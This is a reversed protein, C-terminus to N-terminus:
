HEKFGTESTAASAQGALRASSTAADGGLGGPLPAPRHSHDRPRPRRKQVDDRRQQLLLQQRQRQLARAARGRLVATLGWGMASTAGSLLLALGPHQTVGYRVYMRSGAVGEVLRLWANLRTPAQYCWATLMVFLSNALLMQTGYASMQSPPMLGQGEFAQFCSRLVVCVACCVTHYYLATPSALVWAMAAELLTWWFRGAVCRFAMRAAALRAWAGGAWLAAAAPCTAQFAGFLSKLHSLTQFTVITLQLVLMHARTRHAIFRLGAAAAAARGSAGNVPVRWCAIAQPHNRLIYLLLLGSPSSASALVLPTLVAPIGPVWVPQLWPEPLAASAYWSLVLAVASESGSVVAAHLPPLHSQTGVAHLLVEEAGFNLQELAAWLHQALAVSDAAPHVGSGKEECALAHNPILAQEIRLHVPQNGTGLPRVRFVMGGGWPDPPGAPRPETAARDVFDCTTGPLNGDGEPLACPGAWVTSEYRFCADFPAAGAGDGGDRGDGGGANGATTAAARGLPLERCGILVLPAGLEWPSISAAAGGESAASGHEVSGEQGCSQHLPQLGKSSADAGKAGDASKFNSRAQSAGAESNGVDYSCGSGMPEESWSRNAQLRYRARHWHGNM